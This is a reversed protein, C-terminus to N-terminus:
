GFSVRRDERQIEKLMERLEDLNLSLASQVEDRSANGQITINPSYIVQIDKGTSSGESLSSVGNLIAQDRTVEPLMGLIQGAQMWLSKARDSGDLPVAAEPGNEAFTTLIPSNYIGGEANQMIPGYSSLDYASTVGYNQHLTLKVPVTASLGQSFTQDLFEQSYQYLGEIAPHIIETKSAELSSEIGTATATKAYGTIDEYYQDVYGKINAYDDSNYVDNAVDRYLGETNGEIGYLKRNALYVKDYNTMGQLTELKERVSQMNEQMEPSLSDWENLLAYFETISSDIPELMEAIAKKTTDDPGAQSIDMMMDNWTMSPTDQWDNAWQESSYKKLIEEKSKQYEGIEDGYSDYITNLLFEMTRIQVSAKDSALKQNMNEMSENYEAETLGGGKYAKSEIYHNKAYNEEYVAIMETNQEDLEQMLATLSESTLDKGSYRQELVALKGEYEGVALGEKVEAIQRQLNSITEIENIDLLGDKFGENVAANIQKGLGVLETYNDNCFKNVKMQISDANSYDDTFAYEMSLNVAYREQLAYEQAASVYDDIAKKYSDQDEETLEMGISVKWNMKKLAEAADEMTETFGDLEDFAELASLVGTLNESGVIYSAAQEIDEMSLAISGLHAGLNANVARDEADRIAGAVGGIAAAALGAVAPVASLPNTLLKAINLGITATKTAAIGAAVATLAGKVAGKNKIIWQGAAIGNEWLNEISDGIGELAKAFEGEHAEAFEVLSETVVPIKDALWSVFEKSDDSFVDVLRIQMDQKASELRKQANELTDTTIDYMRDLAGSSQVIDTELNEWATSSGEGLAETAELLYSLQSYYHTGAINKLSLSKQEDNLGDLATSIEGIAERFGIFKGKDWIDVGLRGLEKMATTNGALRVLIANLATGAEEGKLGNNALIGLATITDDLDAGLTKAAGGTKVLAGMLQEATTNSKNNGMVLKDMYMDLENVGLGLASMSDTVLDSTTQLDKGTAAALELMSELGTLSQNVDWGALSMYELASAAETATFVTSAGAEMAAEKMSLFQTATAGSISQVTTMEQEFETYTDVANSIAYTAATAAATVGAAMGAMIKNSLSNLGQLGAEAKSLNAKWSASTAAGLRVELEYTTKSAM